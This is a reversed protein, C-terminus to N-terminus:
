QLAAQNVSPLLQEIEQRLHQYRPAYDLQSTFPPENLRLMLLKLTKYRDWDTWALRRACESLPAWEWETRPQRATPEPLLKVVQDAITRALRYNGELNLHVHEFLFEGGPLGHPSEQALVQEGDALVIGEHERGTAATCILANLCSDARFRLTDFDRARIFHGRAEDGRGLMPCCRGWRFQLEAFRDDIAAAHSFGELAEATKGAQEAQSAETYLQDWRKLERENLGRRHQSAFPPCDKLNSVVTSVIIRAGHARGLNLIDALNRAFHSYVAPMRPDDQRVQHGLFLAMSWQSAKTRSGKARRLIDDLLEGIRTAKLALSARILLLSPAQPGFVTGSGFPGVVENNGMYIVWIDGNQRACDRATPLVVHSNIGTMAANIVEFKTQPFRARLLAELVRPLGFDPNPDGYAASEGFILIRCTGPAKIEPIMM